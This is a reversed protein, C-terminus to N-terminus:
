NTTEMPRNQIQKTDKEYLPIYKGQNMKITGGFIQLQGDGNSSKQSVIVDIVSLKLGNFCVGNYM